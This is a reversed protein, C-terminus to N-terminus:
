EDNASFQRSLQREVTALRRRWVLNNWRRRKGQPNRLGSRTTYASRHHM